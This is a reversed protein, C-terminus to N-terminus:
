KCYAQFPKKGAKCVRAAKVHYTVTKETGKYRCVLYPDIDDLLWKGMTGSNDAMLEVMKEPPGDFLAVGVLAHRVGADSIHAPCAVPAAQACGIAAICLAMRIASSWWM